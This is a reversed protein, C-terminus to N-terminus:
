TAGAELAALDRAELLFVGEGGRAFELWTFPLQPYRAAVEPWIEGVEVVLVGGPTLRAAAGRLIRSVCDQGADAAVLAARPEAHFEPPLERWSTEPVYPPNSVILDYRRRVPPFLDAHYLRVRGDLGHRAVNRAAVALAEASTDTADVAAHPCALAAAIAICGSGTGIDLISRVDDAELWPAFGEAILEGLPSRPVLVHPDVEFELGAFWMRGTLYAAPKRTEIRAQVLAEVAAAQAPALVADLASPPVDYSWGLAHLVLFLAEDEANDTGHGFHLGAACFRRAAAAV